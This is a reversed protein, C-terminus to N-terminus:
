EEVLEITIPTCDNTGRFPMVTLIKSDAFCEPTVTIKLEIGTPHRVKETRVGEPARFELHAFLDDWDHHDKVFKLPVASKQRLKRPRMMDRSGVTEDEQVGPVVGYAFNATFSGAQELASRAITWKDPTFYVAEAVPMALSVLIARAAAPELVPIAILQSFNRGYPLPAKPSVKLTYSGEGLDQFDYQFYPSEQPPALVLKELEAVKKFTFVVEWPAAPNKLLPLKVKREPLVEAVTKVQGGYQGRLPPCRLSRIQIFRVFSESLMRGALVDFEVTLAEGPQLVTNDAQTLLRTCDCTAMLSVITQPESSVNVVRFSARREEQEYVTGVPLYDGECGYDLKLPLDGAPAPADSSHAALPLAMRLGLLVCLAIKMLAYKM